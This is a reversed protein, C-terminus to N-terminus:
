GSGHAAELAALRAEVDGSERVKTAALVIAVLARARAITNELGLVDVM